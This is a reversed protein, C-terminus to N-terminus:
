MLQIETSVGAPFYPFQPFDEGRKYIETIFYIDEKTPHYWQNLGVCFDQQHVDCRRIMHFFLRFHGKLSTDEEYYKLLGVYRLLVHTVATIPFPNFDMERKRV